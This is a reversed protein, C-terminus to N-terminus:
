VTDKVSITESIYDKGSITKAIFDKGSISVAIFDSVTIKFFLSPRSVLGRRLIYGVGGVGTGTKLGKTLIRDAM